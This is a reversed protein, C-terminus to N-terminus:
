SRRGFDRLELLENAIRSIEQAQPVAEAHDALGAVAARLKQALDDLRDDRTTEIRMLVESIDLLRHNVKALESEYGSVIQFVFASAALVILLAVVVHLTHQVIMPAQMLWEHDIVEWVSLLLACVGVLAWRYNSIPPRSDLSASAKAGAALPGNGESTGVPLSM